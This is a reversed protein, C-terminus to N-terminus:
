PRWKRRFRFGEAFSQLRDLANSAVHNILALRRTRYTEAIPAVDADHASGPVYRFGPGAAGPGALCRAQMVALQEVACRETMGLAQAVQEPTWTQARGRYLLLLVELEDLTRALRSVANKVAESLDSAAPM